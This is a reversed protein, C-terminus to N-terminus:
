RKRNLVLLLKNNDLFRTGIVEFELSMYIKLMSFNKNWVSTLVSSYKEFLIDLFKRYIKLTSFGRLEKEVGGYMLEIECNSLEKYLVYGFLSGDERQAAYGGDIKFEKASKSYGFITLHLDEVFKDTLDKKDLKVFLM